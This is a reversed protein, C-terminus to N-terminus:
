LDKIEKLLEEWEVQTELAFVESQITLIRSSIKDTYELGLKKAMEAMKDKVLSNVEIRYGESLKLKPFGLGNIDELLQEIKKLTYSYGWDDKLKDLLYNYTDSTIKISGVGVVVPKPKAKLIELADKAYVKKQAVTLEKSM